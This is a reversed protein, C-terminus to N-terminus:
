LCSFNNNKYTQVPPHTMVKWLQLKCYFIVDQIVKVWQPVLYDPLQMM